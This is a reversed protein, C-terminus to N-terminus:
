QREGTNADVALLKWKGRSPDGIREPVVIVKGDPSWAPGENSLSAFGSHTLLRHESGTATDAIVVSSEKM